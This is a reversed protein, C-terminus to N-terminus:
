NNLNAIEKGLATKLLGRAYNLMHSDEHEIKNIVGHVIKSRITYIKNFADKINRRQKINKGILYACRDGLTKTLGGQDQDDGFIAELGMCLQLFAMVSDENAYSTIYWDIAMKIRRAENSSDSYLQSTKQTIVEIHENLTKELTSNIELRSIFRSLSIPLVESYPMLPYTKDVIQASYKTIMHADTANFLGLGNILPPNLKHQEQLNIVKEMMMFYFFINLKQIYERLIDNKSFPSYFGKGEFNICTFEKTSTSFLGFSDVEEGSSITIGEHNSCAPFILNHLKFTISLHTPTNKFADLTFTILEDLNSEPMNYLYFAHEGTDVEKMKEFYYNIAHLFILACQSSNTKFPVKRKNLESAIDTFSISTFECYPFSHILYTKLLESKILNQIKQESKMHMETKNM